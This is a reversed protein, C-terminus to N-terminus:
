LLINDILRTGGVFVAAAMVTKKAHCIRVPELTEADVCDVYDLVVRENAPLKAKFVAKLEGASSVGQSLALKAAKLGRSIGLALARDSPTLYTNRSSLALGDKERVTAVGVVKIPLNLDRVMTRIVQLQQYDKRGFVVVDPQAINLLKLVVTAVGKFHGPRSEGCLGRSVERVEVETQFGPPYMDGASPMFVYDVGANKLKALDGKEDRPYRGFDENKGFQTPNVFLSVVVVDAKQKATKVLKLHGSHLYGMTPVLAVTKRKKIKLLVKTLGAPKKVVKM